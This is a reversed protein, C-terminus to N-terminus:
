YALINDANQGYYTYNHYMMFSRDTSALACSSGALLTMDVYNVFEQQSPHNKNGLFLFNRTVSNEKLTLNVLLKVM